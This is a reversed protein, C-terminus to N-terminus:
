NRTIAMRTEFSTAEPLASAAATMLFAAKRLRLMGSFQIAFCSWNIRTKNTWNPSAPAAPDALDLWDRRGAEPDAEGRWECRNAAPQFVAAM